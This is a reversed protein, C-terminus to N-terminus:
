AGSAGLIADAFARGSDREDWDAVPAGGYYRAGAASGQKVSEVPSGIRSDEVSNRHRAVDRLLELAAVPDKLAAAVKEVQNQYIRENDVLSQVVEPILYNLAAARKEAASNQAQLRQSLENTIRLLQLTKEAPPM